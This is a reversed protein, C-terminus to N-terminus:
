IDIHGGTNWVLYEGSIAINAVNGSHTDNVSNGTRQLTVWLIDPTSIENSIMDPIELLAVYWIQTNSITPAPVVLIQEQEHQAISPSTSASKYVSDGENSWTWRIIWEINGASNNTTRSAWRFIIPSSTDLSLPLATNYGTRDITGDVFLNEIAGIAVNKGVYLDSNSPSNNAPQALGLHWPLTNIPRGLGFYELYGDSNIEFRNTHLKIQEIIPTTTVAQAIRLRVWYLNIGLGMPDSKMWNFMNAGGSNLRSDFRVHFSGSKSFIQRAYSSYDGNSNTTMSNVETWTSGNWYEFVYTPYGTEIGISSTKLKIGSFKLYDGDKYIASALYIANDVTNSPFTFLNGMASSADSTINTYTSVGDYTYVVMGRTYSDGGGFVSETPNLPTGVHLEGFINVGEDDPTLDIITAYFRSGQIAYVKSLETLGTGVITCNPNKINFAYRGVNEITGGWFGVRINTGINDVILADNVINTFTVSSFDVITNNGSIKIGTYFKDAQAGKAIIRCGDEALIGLSVNTSFSKLDSLIATSNIGTIHFVTNINSNGVIQFQNMYLTGAEIYAVKDITILNTLASINKTDIVGDVNNLHLGIGCDYIVVNRAVVQCDYQNYIAAHTADTGALSIDDLTMFGGSVNEAEFLNANPTNAVIRTNVNSGASKITVYTKLPLPNLETYIGSHIEIVYRTTPSNDTITNLAAKITTFDGGSKAVVITHQQGIAKDHESSTLHYYGDTNIDGGQLGGMQNHLSVSSTMDNYEFASDVIGSDDGMKLVIRGIYMGFSSIIIPPIPRLEAKAEAISSYSSTGLIYFIINDNDRYFYRNIYQNSSAVILDNGDDYQTNNYQTQNQTSTWAGGVHYMFYMNNVTSDFSSLSKNVAGYWYKGSSVSIERINKESLISGSQHKFRETKVARTHLKNALGDGLSNWDIYHIDNGDRYATVIPVINSENIIDVDTTLQYEPSGSNYNVIIYNTQNDVLTFTNGVVLFNYIQGTFTSNTYLNVLNSNISLAGAGLNTVSITNDILGTSNLQIQRTDQLIDYHGGNHSILKFSDRQTQIIQTSKGDIPLSSTTQITASGGNILEGYFTYEIGENSISPDPITIIIDNNNPALSFITKDQTELVIYNTSINIITTSLSGSGAPSSTGIDDVNTINIKLAGSGSSYVANLIEDGRKFEGDLSGSNFIENLIEDSRLFSGSYM